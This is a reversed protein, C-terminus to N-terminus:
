WTKNALEIIIKVEKEENKDFLKLIFDSKIHEEPKWKIHKYLDCDYAQKLQTLFSDEIYFATSFNQNLSLSEHDQQPSNVNNNM